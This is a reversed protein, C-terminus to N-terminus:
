QYAYFVSSMSNSSKTKECQKKFSTLDNVKKGFITRCLKADVPAGSAAPKRSRPTSSSGPQADGEAEKAPCIGIHGENTASFGYGNKVWEYIARNAKSYKKDDAISAQGDTVLLALHKQYGHMGIEHGYLALYKTAGTCIGRQFYGVCSRVSVLQDHRSEATATMGGFGYLTIIPMMMKVGMRKLTDTVGRSTKKESLKSTPAGHACIVQPVVPNISSIAAAWKASIHQGIHSYALHVYSPVCSILLINLKRAISGTKTIGDEGVCVSNMIKDALRSGLYPAMNSTWQYPLVGRSQLPNHASMALVNKLINEMRDIIIYEHYETRYAKKNELAHKGYDFCMAERFTAESIENITYRDMEDEPLLFHFYAQLGSFVIKYGYCFLNFALVLKGMSHAFVKAGRMFQLSTHIFIPLSVRTNLYSEDVSNYSFEYLKTGTGYLVKAMKYRNPLDHKAVFNVGFLGVKEQSKTKTTTMRPPSNSKLEAWYDNFPQIEIRIRNGYTQEYIDAQKRESLRRHKRQMGLFVRLINQHEKKEGPWLYFMYNPDSTQPLPKSLIYKRRGEQYRSDFNGNSGIEEMLVRKLELVSWEYLTYNGVIRPDNTFLKSSVGGEFNIVRIHKVTRDSDYNYADEVFQDEENSLNNIAIAFLKKWKQNTTDAFGKETSFGNAQLNQKVKQDDFATHFAEIRKNQMDPPILNPVEEDRFPPLAKSLSEIFSEKIGVPSERDDIFYYEAASFEFVAYAVFFYEKKHYEKYRETPSLFRRHEFEVHAPSKCYEGALMEPAKRPCLRYENSVITKVHQLFKDLDGDQVIVNMRAQTAILKGPIPIHIYMVHEASKLESFLEGFRLTHRDPFHYNGDLRPFSIFWNRLYYMYQLEGRGYFLVTMKSLSSATSCRFSCRGMQLIDKQPNERVCDPQYADVRDCYDLFKKSPSFVSGGSAQFKRRGFSPLKFQGGISVRSFDLRALGDSLTAPTQTGSAMGIKRLYERYHERNTTPRSTGTAKPQSLKKEFFRKASESQMEFYMNVWQENEFADFEGEQYLECQIQDRQYFRRKVFRCDKQSPIRISQNDMGGSGVPAPDIGVAQVVWLAEALALLAMWLGALRPTNCSNTTTLM